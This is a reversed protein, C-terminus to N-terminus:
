ESLADVVNRLHYELDTVRVIQTELADTWREMM